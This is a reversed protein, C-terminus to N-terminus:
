KKSTVKVEKVEKKEAKRERLIGKVKVVHAHQLLREKSESTDEVKDKIEGTHKDKYWIRYKMKKRNFKVECSQLVSARRDRKNM